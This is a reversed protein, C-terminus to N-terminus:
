RNQFNRFLYLLAHDRRHLQSAVAQLPNFPQIGRKVRKDGYSRFRRPALRTLRLLVDLMPTPSPRQVANRQRQLVDKIGGPNSGRRRASQEFLANWGLVGFNHPSQFICASHQQSFLVKVLKSIAAARHHAVVAFHM